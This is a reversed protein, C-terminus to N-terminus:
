IRVHIAWLAFVVWAICAALLCPWRRPLEKGVWHGLALMGLLAFPAILSGLTM